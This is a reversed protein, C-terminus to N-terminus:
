MFLSWFLCVLVVNNYLPLSLICKALYYQKILKGTLLLAKEVGVTEIRKQSCLSVYIFWHYPLPCHHVKCFKFSRWVLLVSWQDQRGDLFFNKFLGGLNWHDLTDQTALSVVMRISQSANLIHKSSPLLSFSFIYPYQNRRSFHCELSLGVCM